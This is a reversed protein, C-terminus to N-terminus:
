LIWLTQRIILSKYSLLLYSTGPFTIVNRLIQQIYKSTGAKWEHSSRACLDEFLSTKGTLRHRTYWIANQCGRMNGVTKRQPHLYCSRASPLYLVMSCMADHQRQCLFKCSSLPVEAYYYYPADPRYDASVCGKSEETFEDLNDAPAFVELLFKWANIHIM